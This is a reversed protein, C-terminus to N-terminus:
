VRSPPVTSPGCEEARGRLPSSSLNGGLWGHVRGEKTRWALDCTVQYTLRAPLRDERFVATGDLKWGADTGELRCADHGPTDLRRWLVSAIEM